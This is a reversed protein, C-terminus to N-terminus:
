GKRTRTQIYKTCIIHGDMVLRGNNDLRIGPMIECDHFLPQNIVNVQM